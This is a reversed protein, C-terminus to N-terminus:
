SLRYWLADDSQFTLTGKIVEAPPFSNDASELYCYGEYRMHASEVDYIIAILPVGFKAHNDEIDLGGVFNQVTFAVPVGTGDSGSALDVHVGIARVAPSLNALAMIENATRSTGISVTINTGVVAVGFTGAAYTITCSNGAVGGPMHWWTLDKNSAQATSYAANTLMIFEDLTLSWSRLTPYRRTFLDGLLPIAVLNVKDAIKAVSGGIAKTITTYYTATCSVTDGVSLAPIVIRGGAYQVESPTLALWSGTGGAKYWFTAAATRVLYRKTPDTIEYCTHVAYYPDAGIENMPENTLSGTAGKVSYVASTAGTRPTAVM